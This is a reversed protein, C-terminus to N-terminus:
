EKSIDFYRIESTINGLRLIDVLIGEKVYQKIELLDAYSLGKSELKLSDVVNECVPCEHTQELTM